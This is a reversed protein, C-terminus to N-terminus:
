TLPLTGDVAYDAMITRSVSRSAPGSGRTLFRFGGSPGRYACGAPRRDSPREGAAPFVLLQPNRSAINRVLPLTAATWTLVITPVHLRRAFLKEPPRASVSLRPDIVGARPATRVASFPQCTSRILLNPNADRGAGGKPRYSSERRRSYQGRSAQRSCAWRPVPRQYPDGLRREPSPRHRAVPVYRLPMLPVIAISVIPLGYSRMPDVPKRKPAHPLCPQQYRASRLALIKVPDGHSTWM